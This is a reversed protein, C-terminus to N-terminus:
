KTEKHMQESSNLILRLFSKRQNKFLGAALRASLNWESHFITLRLFPTLVNAGTLHNGNWGTIAHTLIGFGTNKARLGKDELSIAKVGSTLTEGRM